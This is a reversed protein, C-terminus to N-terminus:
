IHSETQEVRGRLLDLKAYFEKIDRNHREVAAKELQVEQTFSEIQSTFESFTKKLGIHSEDIMRRVNDKMNELDEKFMRIQVTFQELKISALKREQEGGELKSRLEDQRDHLETMQDYNKNEAQRVKFELQALQKALDDTTSTKKQAKQVIFECEDVKKKMIDNQKKIELIIDREQISRKVCPEVLDMVIQRMRTEFAFFDANTEFMDGHSRNTDQL